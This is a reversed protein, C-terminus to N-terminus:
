KAIMKKIFEITDLIILYLAILFYGFWLRETLKNDIASAIALASIFIAFRM